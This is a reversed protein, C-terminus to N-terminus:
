RRLRGRPNNQSSYRNATRNRYNNNASNNGNNGARLSLRSPNQTGTSTDTGSNSGRSASQFTRPASRSNVRQQTTQTVPVAQNRDNRRRVETNSRRDDRRVARDNRIRNRNGYGNGSPGLQRGSSYTNAPIRRRPNDNDSRLNTTGTRPRQFSSTVIAPRSNRFGNHQWTRDSTRRRNLNVGRNINRNRYLYRNAYFNSGFYPHRHHNYRYSYLNHTNWGIVFATSVGWFFSTSFRYDPAYPYYYVPYGIPYYDLVPGYHRVVVREPEYDPVYIVQPDAPTIQISDEDKIVIQKDDSVLNGASNARKRFQQIADMVDDQQTIVAEGLKVTWDLNEDLLRLVEPYNLLAIISDEWNEDPTLEPEHKHEDLFQVAQVLQIPNTTAPLIIGILDDPYLAIPGVLEQLQAKTQHSVQAADSPRTARGSFRDASVADQVMLFGAALILYGLIRSTRINRSIESIYM